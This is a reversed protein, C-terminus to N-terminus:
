KKYKNIRKFFYLTVLINILSYILNYGAMSIGAFSWTVEDCKTIPVTSLFARLQDINDFEQTANSCSSSIQWLGKEVGFHTLALAFSSLFLFILLVSIYKFLRSFFYIISFLIILIYPIRQYICLECPPYNEFYQYYLAFIIALFSVGFSYIVFYDTKIRMKSRFYVLM